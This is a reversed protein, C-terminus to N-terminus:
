VPLVGPVPAMPYKERDFVLVSDTFSADDVPPLSKPVAANTSTETTVQVACPLTTRMRVKLQALTTGASDPGDFTERLYDRSNLSTISLSSDCLFSPCLLRVYVYVRLFLTSDDHLLVTFILACKSIQRAENLSDINPLLSM